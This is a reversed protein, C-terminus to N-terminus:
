LSLIKTIQGDSQCCGFNDRKSSPKEKEMEDSTDQHNLRAFTPLESEPLFKTEINASKIVLVNRSLDIICKSLFLDILNRFM